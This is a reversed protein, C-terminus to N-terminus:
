RSPMLYATQGYWVDPVTTIKLVDTDGYLRIQTLSISDTDECLMNNVADWLTRIKVHQTFENEYVGYSQLELKAKFRDYAQSEEWYLEIAGNDFMQLRVVHDRDVAKLAKVANKFRGYQMRTYGIEVGRLFDREVRDFMAVTSDSEDSSLTPPVHSGKFLVYGNVASEVPHGFIHMRYSDRTYTKNGIVYGYSLSPRYNKDTASELWKLVKNNDATSLTM